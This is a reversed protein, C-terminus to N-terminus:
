RKVTTAVFNQVDARLRRRAADDTYIAHGGAYTHVATRRAFEAPLQAAYYEVGLYSMVLDYYGTAVFLQLNRDSTMAERLAAAPDSHSRADSGSEASAEPVVSVPRPRALGSPAHPAPQAASTDSSAGSRSPSVSVSRNWRVSMWDGRFTTAPPYGGGFPGQYSLDSKFGLEARMYRVVSVTDMIDKLSPDTTPDYQPSPDRPGTLRSDYRGIMLNENALLTPSFQAVDVQLTKRDIADPALGSFRALQKVVENRAAEDLREKRALAVAYDGRAYVEAARLASDLDGSELDEPLKKHYYAAATLTPLTLAVDLTPDIEAIPLGGSLLIVGAPPTHRRELGATVLACRTVGYSEGAIFFPVGAADSRTRYVRIFEAVSEADGRNQYFEAGYEATTPRSYGTGIPDVFVLDTFTLWTEQNTAALTTRSLAANAAVVRKPGFGLLHVLDSNSGPGGNWLFMLPRRRSPGDLTYAVFFMNGHAEGTENDRIPIFGARATYRLTQGRVVVQHRTVVEGDRAAAPILAGLVFAVLLFAHRGPV